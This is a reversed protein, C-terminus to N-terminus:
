SATSDSWLRSTEKSVCSAWVWGGKITPRQLDPPQHPPAGSQLPQPSLRPGLRVEAPDEDQPRPEDGRRRLPQHSNEVKNNAWRGVEQKHRCGLETMAAKYSSLGDTTIKKATGHRKMLKKMFTLAAAKDREKDDYRWSRM